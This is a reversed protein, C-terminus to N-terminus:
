RPTSLNAYPHPICYAYEDSCLGKSHVVCTKVDAFSVETNIRGDLIWSVDDSIASVDIPYVSIPASATSFLSADWRSVPFM